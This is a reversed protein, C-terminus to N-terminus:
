TVRRLLVISRGVLSLKKGAGRKPQPVIFGREDATNLVIAWRKAAHNPLVFTIAEHSANFLILFTDDTIPEGHWDRVDLVDGCLLVGLTKVFHTGWEEESMEQGGANLWMIDKVGAGRVERGQFFKPRRFIPHERRLAILRATFDTQAEEEPKRQWSFWSIENDQCYANNNGQQTRGYEDGGCLMPVGQSLFLTVLFNRQQRRRLANVGEDDTPGEAGCNWSHNNNDGDKNEEGNADNHKDNYSVLDHLTFGDHATIFNISAYPRRGDDQYLDSSGTLRAALEGIQSDEGKWYARVCDRYKGNWETWGV